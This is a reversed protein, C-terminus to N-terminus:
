GGRKRGKGRRKKLIPGRFKERRRINDGTVWGKKKAPPTRELTDPEKLADKKRWALITKRERSPLRGVVPGRHVVDAQV